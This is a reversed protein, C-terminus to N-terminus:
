PTLRDQLNFVFVRQVDLDSVSLVAAISNGFAM